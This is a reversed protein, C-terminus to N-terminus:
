ASRRRRGAFGFLAAGLALIGAVIATGLVPLNGGTSALPDAVGQTNVGAKTGTTGSSGAGATASTGQDADATGGAQTAGAGANADTSAQTQGNLSAGADSGAGAGADTGAGADADVATDADTGAGADTDTGAGTDADTGAGADATAGADQDGGAQADAGDDAVADTDLAVEHTVIQTDTGISNTAVVTFNYVGAVSPTGSLVGTTRDLTLGAPLTGTVSFTPAPSGSAVVTHSFAKGQMASVPVPSTIQPAVGVDQVLTGSFVTSVRAAPPLTGVQANVSWTAEKSVGPASWSFRDASAAAVLDTGTVPVVEGGGDRVPNLVEAGVTVGPLPVSQNELTASGLNGLNALPSVDVIRAGHAKLKLLGTFSAVPTLDSVHTNSIDVERLRESQAGLPSLDAISSGDMVINELRTASLDPLQTIAPLGAISFYALQPFSGLLSIDTVLTRALGVGELGEFQSLVSIDSVQNDDLVIALIEPIGSLVSIDTVRNGGLHLSGIRELGVLPSLDSINNDPLLLDHVGGLHNIGAISTIGRDACFVEHVALDRLDQVALVSRNEPVIGEADM